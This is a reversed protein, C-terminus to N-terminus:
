YIPRYCSRRRREAVLVVMLRPRLAALDLGYRNVGEVLVTKQEETWPFGRGTKGKPLATKVKKVNRLQEEVQAAAKRKKGSLRDRPKAHASEVPVVVAEDEIGEEEEGGGDDDDRGERLAVVEMKTERLEAKTKRLEAEVRKVREELEM